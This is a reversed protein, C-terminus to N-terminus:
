ARAHPRISEGVEGLEHASQALHNVASDFQAPDDGRGLEEVAPRLLDGIVSLAETGSTTAALFEALESRSLDGLESALDDKNVEQVRTALLRLVVLVSNVTNMADRESAASLTLELLHLTRTRM